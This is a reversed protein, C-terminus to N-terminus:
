NHTSQEEAQAPLSCGMVVRLPRVIIVIESDADAHLASPGQLWRALASGPTIIHAVVMPYRLLLRDPGNKYGTDLQEM